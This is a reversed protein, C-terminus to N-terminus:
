YYNRHLFTLKIVFNFNRAAISKNYFFNIINNAFFILKFMRRNVSTRLMFFSVSIIAIKTARIMKHIVSVMPIFFVERRSLPAISIPKESSLYNKIGAASRRPKKNKFFIVGASFWGANKNSKNQQINSCIKVKLISFQRKM